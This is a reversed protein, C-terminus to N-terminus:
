IFSCVELKDGHIMVMTCTTGSADTDIDSRELAHHLYEFTTPLNYGALSLIGMLEDRCFSSVNHGHHGHGDFICFLHQDSKLNECDFKSSVFYADQNIWDTIGPKYGTITTVGYTQNETSTAESVSRWPRFCCCITM